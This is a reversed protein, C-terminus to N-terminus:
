VIQAYAIARLLDKKELILNCLKRNEKKHTKTMINIKIFDEGYGTKVMPQFDIWRSSVECPVYGKGHENIKRQKYLNPIEHISNNTIESDGCAAQSYNIARLLDKKELILNCLKKDGSEYTDTMIVIEIFGKFTTSEPKFNIWRSSVECPVYGRGYENMKRQRYSNTMQTHSIETWIEEIGHNIIESDENKGLVIGISCTLHHVENNQSGYVPFFDGDISDWKSKEIDLYSYNVTVEMSYIGEVSIIDNYECVDIVRTSVCYVNNINRIEIEEIDAINVASELYSSISDILKEEKYLYLILESKIDENERELYAHASNYIHAKGKNIIDQFESIEKLVIMSDINSFDKDGSIVFIEDNSNNNIYAELMSINFADPFESKKNGSSGFPPNSDIYKKWICKVDIGSMPLVLNDIRKLYSEFADINQILLDDENFEIFNRVVSFDASKIKKFSEEIRNKIKRKVEDKVVDSILLKINNILLFESFRDLKSNKSFNCCHRIYVSSDVFVVRNKKM